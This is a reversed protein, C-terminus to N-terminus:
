IWPLPEVTVTLSAPKNTLLLNLMKRRGFPNASHIIVKKPYKRTEVMYRVVDYGTTPATNLDYDLSLINVKGTQLFRVAQEATRALKFGPPSPRLDDLFVNILSDM